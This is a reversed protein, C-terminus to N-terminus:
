TELFEEWYEFSIKTSSHDQINENKEESKGIEGLGRKGSERPNNGFDRVTVDM